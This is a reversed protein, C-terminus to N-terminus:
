TVSDLCFSPGLIGRCPPSYSFPRGPEEACLTPERPKRSLNRPSLATALEAVRVRAENCTSAEQRLSLNQDQPGASEWWDEWFGSDWRGAWCFHPPLLCSLCKVVVSAEWGSADRAGPRQERHGGGTSLVWCRTPGSYSDMDSPTPSSRSRRGNRSCGFGTGLERSHVQQKRQQKGRRM